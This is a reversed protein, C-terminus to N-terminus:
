SPLPAPAAAFPPRRMVEELRQWALSLLRAHLLAWFAAPWYWYHPGTLHLIPLHVAVVMGVLTWTRGDGLRVLVLLGLLFLLALLLGYLERPMTLLAFNGGLLHAVLAALLVAALIM